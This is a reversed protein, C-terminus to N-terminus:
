FKIEAEWRFFIKTGSMGMYGLSRFDGTARLNESTM